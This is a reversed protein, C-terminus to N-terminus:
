ISNGCQGLQQQEVCLAPLGKNPSDVETLEAEWFSAGFSSPLLFSWPVPPFTHGVIGYDSPSYLMLFCPSQRM